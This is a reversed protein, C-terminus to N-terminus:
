PKGGMIAALSARAIAETASLPGAADVTRWPAGDTAWGLQQEVVAPTADSADGTRAAVRALLTERPASLWLGQFPVGLGAAVAAIAERETEKAFVADIIVSHGAAAALRAKDLLQEYVRANAEPTYAESPLRVTEAAGLRAKRELDSRLNLAGPSAGLDPALRATLTSKGTGSLGGIAILCPRKPELFRLAARLYARAENRKVSADEGGAHRLKDAAVLARVGARLGLLLPMAALGELDLDSQSRWLYRNLVRNAGERLGHHDLDMLLFALDYLTDITALSENFEVADFLVPTGQWLVVNGLHLDGHLRRVCGAAARRALPVVARRLAAAVWQAFAHRDAEALVDGHGAFGATLQDAIAGLREGSDIGSIAAARAHADFVADALAKAIVPDLEGAAARASLLDAQRFARMRVAWEVPIGAGGIALGGGDERTIPVTALYIQPANPRNVEIERECARRRLELTSFDLYPYRVARKIKIAEGDSVFVHACHTTFRSSADPGAWGALFAVVDAQAAEGAEENIGTM